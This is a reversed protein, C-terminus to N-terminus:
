RMMREVRAAKPADPVNSYRIVEPISLLIGYVDADDM